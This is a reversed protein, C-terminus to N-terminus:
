AARALDPAANAWRRKGFGLSKALGSRVISYGPATM